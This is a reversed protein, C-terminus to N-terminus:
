NTFRASQSGIYPSLLADFLALMANTTQNNFSTDHDNDTTFVLYLSLKAIPTM